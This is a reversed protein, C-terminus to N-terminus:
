SEHACRSQLAGGVDRSCWISKDTLHFYVIVTVNNNRLNCCKDSCVVVVIYMRCLHLDCQLKLDCM